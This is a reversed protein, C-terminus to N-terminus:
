RLEALLKRAEERQAESGEALVEDLMSRAGDPDGMDVYARALDLRTGITDEDMMLDSLATEHQGTAAGAEAPEYTFGPHEHEVSEHAPAVQQDFRPADLPHEDRDMDVHVQRGADHTPAEIRDSLNRPEIVQTDFQDRGVAATGPLTGFGAAHADAGSEAFLAHHPSLAEGMALVEAWEPADVGLRSHLSEALAEFHTADSQEYYHRLLDLSAPVDEPHEAVRDALMQASPAQAADAPAATDLARAAAAYQPRVMPKPKRAFRSWAWGGILLLIAGIGYFLYPNDGLFGTAPQAPPLPVPAKAEPSPLPTTQAPTPTPPAETVPATTAPAPSPPAPTAATEPPTAAPAAPTTAPPTSAETKAASAAADAAPQVAPVADAPKVPAATAPEPAKGAQLAKLKNQLDAIESDKLSILRQGKDNIDELQKVRSKLETGEQQSNVLTEKTRALEARGDAGDKGSGGHDSGSENSKGSQPPVLALHETGAAAAPKVPAKNETVAPAGANTALAPQSAERWSQTQERVAAAADRLSGANRIEDASPIRLVAGAKLANINSRYFANPNAKLLALMVQNLDASDAVDLDRAIASLTEGRGVPGYQGAAAAPAAAPRSAPAPAPAPAQAPKAAVPESPALAPRAEVPKPKVVPRAEVPAQAVVPKSTAVVAPATVPPDLLVTYERLLKGKAWNVEILFDLFPERVVEKTTLKIVTQGHGNSHVAFDIPIGVRTRNLGVREFDEASALDVRLDNAEAPSDTTVAIEAVLPQNLGSKVQIPGLGLAAVQGTALALAVALSSKMLRKM